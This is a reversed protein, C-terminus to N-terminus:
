ERSIVQYLLGVESPAITQCSLAIARVGPKYFYSPKLTIPAKSRNKLESIIGVLHSGSYFTIPKIDAIGYFRTEKSGKAESYAYDEIAENNIMSTILAVLVKQYSETEEFRATSVSPTTSNLIVTRGAVSRPSVLLSFNHGKLTSVFITFTTDGYLSIYGSGIADNKATYLGAPGNISQIKDGSVLLRNIDRNSLIVNIQENDAFFKEIVGDRANATKITKPLPDADMAIRRGEKTLNTKKTEKIEKIEEAVAVKAEEAIKAEEIIKTEKIEKTERTEEIKPEIPKKHGTGDISSIQNVSSTTEKLANPNKPKETINTDKINTATIASAVATTQNNISVSDIDVKASKNDVSGKATKTSKINETNEILKTNEINNTIASYVVAGKISDKKNTAKDIDNAFIANPSLVLLFHVIFVTIKLRTGRAKLINPLM